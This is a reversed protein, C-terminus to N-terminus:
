ELNAHRTWLTEASEGRQQWLQQFIGDCLLLVSQEFLAGAYQQSQTGGHDQKTAAPITVVNDALQGLPSQPATTMVLLKAGVKKATQGAQLASATTGSGSAVILLDGTAIAPTTVEGAVHVSLGLHMLRMAAMKLALGSRGAGATFVRRAALIAQGATDLELQSVADLTRQLETLIQTRDNQAIVATAM